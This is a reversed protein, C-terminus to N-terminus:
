RLIKKKMSLRNNIFFFVIMSNSTLINCQIFNIVWFVSCLFHFFITIIIIVTKFYKFVNKDVKKKIVNVLLLLWKFINKYMQFNSTGNLVKALNKLFYHVLPM